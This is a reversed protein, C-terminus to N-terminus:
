WGGVVQLVSSALEPRAGTGVDDSVTSRHTSHVVISGDDSTRFYLAGATGGRWLLSARAAALRLVAATAGQLAAIQGLVGQLSVGEGGVLTREGVAWWKYRLACQRHVKAHTFLSRQM